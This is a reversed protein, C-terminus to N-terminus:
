LEYSTPFSFIYIRSQWAESAIVLFFFSIPCFAASLQYSMAPLFLSNFILDGRLVARSSPFFSASLFTITPELVSGV